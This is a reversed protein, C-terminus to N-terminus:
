LMQRPGSPIQVRFMDPETAPPSANKQGVLTAGRTSEAETDENLTAKSPGLPGVPPAASTPPAPVPIEAKPPAPQPSPVDERKTEAKAESRSEAPKAITAAAKSRKKQNPTEMTMSSPDIRDGIMVSEFELTPREDETFESHLRAVTLSHSVHIVQLRAVNIALEGQQKNQVPDHVPVPRVVILYMGKKFGAEAGANIYFDKYVPEDPELPLSRRVDFIMPATNLNTAFANALTALQIAGCVALLGVIARAVSKRKPSEFM